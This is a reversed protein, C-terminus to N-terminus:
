FTETISIENKEVNIKIKGSKLGALIEEKPMGQMLLEDVAVRAFRDSIEKAEPTRLRSLPIKDWEEHANQRAKRLKDLDGALDIM